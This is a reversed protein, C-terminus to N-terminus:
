KYLRLAGTIPKLEASTAPGVAMVTCTGSEVETRGADFVPFTTIQAATAQDRVQILETMSAVAVCIIASGLNEDEWADLSPGAPCERCLAHVAHGVQAAVKGASMGLDERVCVVVKRPEVEEDDSAALWTLAAEVNEEVTLAANYVADLAASASEPEVEVDLLYELAERAKSDM